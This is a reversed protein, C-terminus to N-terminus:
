AVSFVIDFGKKDESLTAIPKGVQAQLYGRNLYFDRIRERDTSLTEEQYQGSETFWSTLWFYEKTQITKKLETEKFAYVGELQVRKIYAQDGEKILFTLTAKEESIRNIIPIVEAQYYAEKEYLAVIAEVDRKIAAQDVLAHVRVSLKEKLRETTISANGEFSIEVLAPKEYLVFLLSLGGEFPDTKVEIQDFYGLGYLTKIEQQVAEPSFADGTKIRLKSLLSQTDIKRNGKIEIQKILIKREQALLPTSILMIFLFPFIGKVFYILGGKM